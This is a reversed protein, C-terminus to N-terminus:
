EAHIFQVFNVPTFFSISSFFEFLRCVKLFMMVASLADWPRKSTNSSLYESSPSRRLVPQSPISGSGSESSPSRKLSGQTTPASSISSSSWQRVLRRTSSASPQFAQLQLVAFQAKAIVNDALLQYLDLIAGSDFSTSSSSTTPSSSSKSEEDKSEDDDSPHPPLNEVIGAAILAQRVRQIFDRLKGIETWVNLLESPMQVSFLYANSHSVRQFTVVHFSYRPLMLLSSLLGSRRRIWCSSRCSRRWARLLM